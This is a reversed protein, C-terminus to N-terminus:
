KRLVSAEQLSTLVSSINEVHVNALLTDCKPQLQEGHSTGTPNPIKPVKAEQTLDRVQRSITNSIKKPAILYFVLCKEQYFLKQGYRKFPTDLPGSTLRLQM